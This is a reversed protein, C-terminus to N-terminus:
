LVKRTHLVTCVYNDLIHKRQQRHLKYTSIYRGHCKKRTTHKYLEYENERHILNNECKFCTLFQKINLFFPGLSTHNQRLHHLCCSVFRKVPGKHPFGGTLPPNAWLSGCIRLNSSKKIIEDVWTLSECREGGPASCDLLADKCHVYHLFTSM